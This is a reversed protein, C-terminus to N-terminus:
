LSWYSELQARRIRNTRLLCDQYADAAGTGAIGSAQARCDLERFAKWAEQAKRLEEAANPLADGIAIMFEAEVLASQRRVEDSDCTRREAMSEARLMCTNYQDTSGNGAWAMPSLVFLFVARATASKM